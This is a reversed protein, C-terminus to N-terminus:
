TTVPKKQLLEIISTKEILGLVFGDEKVVILSQDQKQELIKVVELLSLSDVVTNLKDGSKMLDKVLTQTWMSTSITKLDDLNLVGILIGRENTVLFKRWAKKGIVYENAFERLTLNSPIIPSNPTVADGATFNSLKDEIQASHAAFGANQLVFFGILITWFSGFPIVRATGLFGIV